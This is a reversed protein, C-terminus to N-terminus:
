YNAAWKQEFPNRTRYKPETFRPASIISTGISSTPVQSSPKNYSSTTTTKPAPKPAEAKYDYVPAQPKYDYVPAQPQYQYVPAQPQYDYVPAQPEAKYDYVPANPQYSVENQPQYSVEQYAPQQPVYKVETVEKYVTKPQETVTRYSQTEPDYVVEKEKQPAKSSAQYQPQYYTTTTTTPPNPQQTYYTTTTPGGSSIELTKKYNGGSGKVNTEKVVNTAPVRVVKTTTVPTYYTTTTAPTYYTTTTTTTQPQGYQNPASQINYYTKSATGSPGYTTEVAPRYYTTKTTTETPVAMNEEHAGRTVTKEEYVRGDAQFTKKTTERTEHVVTPAGILPGHRLREADEPTNIQNLRYFDQMLRVEDSTYIGGPNQYNKM